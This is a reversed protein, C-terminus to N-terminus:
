YENYELVQKAAQVIFQQWSLSAYLLKFLETKAAVYWNVWVMGEELANITEVEALARAAGLRLM